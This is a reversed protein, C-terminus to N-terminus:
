LASWGNLENKNAVQANGKEVLERIIMFHVDTDTTPASAAKM